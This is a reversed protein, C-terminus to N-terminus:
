SCPLMAQGPSYGRKGPYAEVLDFDLVRGSYTVFFDCDLQTGNGYFGDDGRLAGGGWRRRVGRRVTGDCCLDSM